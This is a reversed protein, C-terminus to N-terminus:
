GVLSYNRLTADFPFLHLGDFTNLNLQNGVFTGALHRYDGTPTSITAWASDQSRELVLLGESTDWYTTDRAGSTPQSHTLPWLRVPVPNTNPRRSETCVGEWVGGM